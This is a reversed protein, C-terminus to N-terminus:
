KLMGRFETTAWPLSPAHTGSPGYAGKVDDCFTPLLTAVSVLQAASAGWYNIFNTGEQKLWTVLGWGSATLDFEINRCQHEAASITIMTFLIQKESAAM